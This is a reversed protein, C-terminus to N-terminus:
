RFQRGGQLSLLHARVLARPELPGHECKVADARWVASQWIYSYPIFLAEASHTPVTCSGLAVVRRTHRSPVLHVVLCTESSSFFKM